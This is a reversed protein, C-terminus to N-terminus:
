AGPAVTDKKAKSARVTVEAEEHKNQTSLLSSAWAAWLVAGLLIALSAAVVKQLPM